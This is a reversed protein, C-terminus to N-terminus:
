SFKAFHKLSRTQILFRKMLFFNLEHEPFEKIFTVFTEEINEGFILQDRLEYITKRQVNLVNDLKLNYERVSYSAGECIRQTRSVFEM